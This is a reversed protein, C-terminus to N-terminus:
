AFLVVWGQGGPTGLQLGQGGGPLRGDRLVRAGRLVAGLGDPLPAAAAPQVCGRGGSVQVAAPLVCCYCTDPRCCPLCFVQGPELAWLCLLWDAAEWVVVLVALWARWGVQVHM